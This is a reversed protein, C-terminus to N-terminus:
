ETEAQTRKWAEFQKEFDAAAKDFSEDADGIGSLMSALQQAAKENETSTKEMRIVNMAHAVRYMMQRAENMQKFTECVGDLTDFQTHAPVMGTLDAVAVQSFTAAMDPVLDELMIDLYDAALEMIKAVNPGIFTTKGDAKRELLGYRLVNCQACECDSARAREGRFDTSERYLNTGDITERAM